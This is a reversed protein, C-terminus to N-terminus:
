HKQLIIGTIILILGALTSIYIEEGVIFHIMILSLFPSLYVLNGVQATTNAYQLAKLWIFFTVGM